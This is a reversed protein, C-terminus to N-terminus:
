SEQPLAYHFAGGTPRGDSGLERVQLHYLHRENRRGGDRDIAALLHQQLTARTGDVDNWDLPERLDSATHVEVRQKYVKLQYWKAPM